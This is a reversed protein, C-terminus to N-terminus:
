REATGQNHECNDVAKRIREAHDHTNRPTSYVRFQHGDRSREPCLLVGYIHGKSKVFRWGHNLAYEIAASIEKKPHYKGM